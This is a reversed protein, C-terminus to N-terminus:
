SNGANNRGNLVEAYLKELISINNEMTFKQRTKFVNAQCKFREDWRDKIEQVSKVCIGVQHEQVFEEVSKCNMAIVPIGAALYEFLKNPMAVDWEKFQGLNGCLGWDHHGLSKLLSNYPLTPKPLSIAEYFKLHETNQWVTYIHFPIQAEKLEKALKEYKCYDMFDYEKPPDAKGNLAIGGLRLHDLLKYFRENVYPPLICHPLSPNTIDRCMKSPFVLGDSMSIALREEGVHKAPDDTRWEMSDHMDLIIPKTIGAERIAMVLHYPETHVHFLDADKHLRLTDLLQRNNQCLSFSAFDEECANPKHFGVLHVEYGKSILAVAEKVLRICCHNGVKVVKM